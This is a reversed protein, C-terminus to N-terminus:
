NEYKYGEELVIKELARRARYILIKVNSTTKNLVHGIEKYSLEEIDALFSVEKLEILDECERQYGYIKM